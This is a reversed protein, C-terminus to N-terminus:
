LFFLLTRREGEREKDSSEAGWRLRHEVDSSHIALSLYHKEKTIITGDKYELEAGKFTTPESLLISVGFKCWVMHNNSGTDVHWPHTYASEPYSSELRFYGKSSIKPINIIELIKIVISTVENTDSRNVDKILHNKNWKVNSVDSNLLIFSEEKSIVNPILKKM